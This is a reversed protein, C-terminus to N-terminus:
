LLPLVREPGHYCLTKLVWAEAAELLPSAAIPCFSAAELLSAERYRPSFYAVCLYIHIGIEGVEENGMVGTWEVEAAKRLIPRPEDNM